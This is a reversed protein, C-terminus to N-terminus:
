PVPGGVGRIAAEAGGGVTAKGITLLTPEGGVGMVSMLWGTVVAM